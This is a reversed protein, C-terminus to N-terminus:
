CYFNSRLTKQSISPQVSKILQVVKMPILDIKTSIAKSSFFSVSLTMKQILITMVQLLYNRKKPTKLESYIISSLTPFVLSKLTIKTKMIIMKLYYM